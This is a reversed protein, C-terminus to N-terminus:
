DLLLRDVLEVVWDAYAEITWGRGRLLKDVAEFSALAWYLDVARALDMRLWPGFSEVVARYDTFRRREYETWAEAIEPDAGAAERFVWMMPAAMPLVELAVRRLQELKAERDSEEVLRSFGERRALPVEVDDGVLSRDVAALLLASKAGQSFVTQVSVGAEAAIAKMTTAAYGERLFCRGAADLVASRTQRAQEERLASRYTRVM